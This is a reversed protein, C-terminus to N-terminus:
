AAETATGAIESVCWIADIDRRRAIERGIYHWQMTGAAPETWARALRGVEAFFDAQQNADLEAFEEALEKPTLTLEIERRISM